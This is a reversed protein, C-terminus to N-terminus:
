ILGPHSMKYHELVLTTGKPGTLLYLRDVTHLMLWFGHGLTSATSYGLELTARPLCELSIGDGSDEIWVLVRDDQSYISAIGGGAHVLTNMAAESSATILEETRETAFGGASCAETVAHRVLRLKDSADVTIDIWSIDPRAPLDTINTCLWLKGQTVSALVDRYFERQQEVHRRVQALLSRNEEEVRKRESLEAQAKAYLVANRSAAAVQGVLAEFLSLQAPSYANAAHSQVQAVGVVANDLLLPVMMLSRTTDDDPEDSVQGDSDVFHLKSHRGYYAPVDGIVIAEGTHIVYSQLGQDKPALPLAPFGSPDLRAGEVWAYDCRIMGDEATYRSVILSVCDMTRDLLSKLTEYIVGIDLTQALLHGAEYLLVLYEGSSELQRVREVPDMAPFDASKTDASATANSEPETEAPSADGNSQTHPIEVDV